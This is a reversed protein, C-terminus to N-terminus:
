EKVPFDSAVFSLSHGCHPCKFRVTQDDDGDNTKESKVESAIRNRCNPCTVCVYVHSGDPAPRKVFPEDTM